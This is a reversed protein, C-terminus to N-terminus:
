RATCRALLTRCQRDDGERTTRAIWLASQATASVAMQPALGRQQFDKSIREILAALGGFLRLSGRVELLLENPPQLSVASSYQECMAGIERLLDVETGTARPLFTMDASLAIAANLSHGLRM